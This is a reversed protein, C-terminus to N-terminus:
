PSATCKFYAGVACEHGMVTKFDLLLKNIFYILAVSVKNVMIKRKFIKKTFSNNFEGYIWEVIIREDNIIANQAFKAIVCRYATRLWLLLTYTADGYVYLQVADM